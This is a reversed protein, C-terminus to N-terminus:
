TRAERCLSSSDGNRGTATGECMTVPQQKDKLGAAQIDLHKPSTKPSNQSPERHGVPAQYTHGQVWLPGDWRSVKQQAGCAVEAGEGARLTISGQLLQERSCGLAGPLQGNAEHRRVSDGCLGPHHGPVLGEQELIHLLIMPGVTGATHQVGFGLVESQVQGQGLPAGEPFPLRPGRPGQELGQLISGETVAEEGAGCERPLGQEQPGLILDLGDHVTLRQPLNHPPSPQRPSFPAGPFSSPHFTGWTGPRKGLVYLLVSHLTGCLPTNSFPSLFILSSLLSTGSKIFNPLLQIILESAVLVFCCSCLLVKVM